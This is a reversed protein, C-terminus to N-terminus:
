AHAARAKPKAEEAPMEQPFAAGAAKRRKQERSEAWTASFLMLGILIFIVLATVGMMLIPM